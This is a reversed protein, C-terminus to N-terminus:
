SQHVKFFGVQVDENLEWQLRQPHVIIEAQGVTNGHEDYGKLILDKFLFNEM